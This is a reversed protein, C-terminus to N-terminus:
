RGSHAKPRDSVLDCLADPISHPLRTAEDWALL